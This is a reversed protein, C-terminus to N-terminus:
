SRVFVTTEGPDNGLSPVYKKVRKRDGDWCIQVGAHTTM